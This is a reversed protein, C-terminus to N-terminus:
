FLIDHHLRFQVGSGGAAMIDFYANYRKMENGESCAVDFMDLVRKLGPPVQKGVQELAQMHAHSPHCLLSGLPQLSTPALPM